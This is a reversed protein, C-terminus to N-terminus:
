PSLSKVLDRVATSEPFTYAFIVAAILSGVIGILLVPSVRKISRWIRSRARLIGNPVNKNEILYEYLENCKILLSTMEDSIFEDGRAEAALIRTRELTIKKMSTRIPAPVVGDRDEISDVINNLVIRRNIIAIKLCDRTARELHGRAKSIDADAVEISSATYARALHNLFNRIENNIQDPINETLGTTISVIESLNGQFETEIISLIVRGINEKEHSLM